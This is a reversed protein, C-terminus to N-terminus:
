VEFHEDIKKEKKKIEYLFSKEISSMSHRSPCTSKDDSYNKIEPIKSTDAQQCRLNHNISNESCYM